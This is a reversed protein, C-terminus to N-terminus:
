WSRGKNGTAVVDDNDDDDSAHYATSSRVIYLGGLLVPLWELQAGTDAAVKEVETSALYAWRNCALSFYLQNYIIIFSHRIIPIRHYSQAMRANFM